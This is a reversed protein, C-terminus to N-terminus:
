RSIEGGNGLAELADFAASVEPSLRSLEGLADTTAAILAQGWADDPKLSARMEGLAVLKRFAVLVRWRLGYPMVEWDHIRRDMM